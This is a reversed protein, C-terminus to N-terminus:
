IDIEVTYDGATITKLDWEVYNDSQKQEIQTLYWMAFGYITIVVVSLVFGKIIRGSLNEEPILCPTQIFFHADSGCAGEVQGSEKMLGKLPM